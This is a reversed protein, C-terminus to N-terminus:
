PKKRASKAAAKRPATSQQPAAAGAAEKPAVAKLSKAFESQLAQMWAGPDPWAAPGASPAVPPPAEPQRAEPSPQAWFPQTWPAQAAPPGATPAANGRMAEAAQAVFEAGPSAKFGKIAALQMDLGSIQLNLMNLNIDLWQRVQKLEGIRKELEEPSFSPMAPGGPGAAGFGPIGMQGWLNKVFEFPDAPNSM